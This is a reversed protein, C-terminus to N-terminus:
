KTKKQYSGNSSNYMQDFRHPCKHEFLHSLYPYVMFGLLYRVAFSPEFTLTRTFKSGMTTTTTTTTAATAGETASTSSLAEVRFEERAARYTLCVPRTAATIGFGFTKHDPQSDDWVDFEERLTTPGALLLQFFWDRFVVTRIAGVGRLEDGTQWVMDTVEPHWLCWATDDLLISWTDAVSKDPLENVSTFTWPGTWGPPERRLPFWM